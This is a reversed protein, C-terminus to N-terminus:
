FRGSYLAKVSNRFTITDSNQRMESPLHNWTSFARVPVTKRTIELNCRRTHLRGDATARTTRESVEARTCVLARLCEPADDAHTLRHVLACDRYEIVEGFSMWGLQRRADSIHERKKKGTIIRLAFNLMKNIRHQLNQTPPAWAPLCYMIHPMVLAQILTAITSSPLTNCLKKITILSGYSRQIVRATQKEMSLSQDLVVGLIKIHDAPKLTNGEFNIQFSTAKKVSSATGVLTMETKNPNVKLGRQSSVM